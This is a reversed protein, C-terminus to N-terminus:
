YKHGGKNSVQRSARPEGESSLGRGYNYGSYPQPHAGLQLSRSFHLIGPVVCNGKLINCNMDCEHTIAKCEEYYKLFNLIM